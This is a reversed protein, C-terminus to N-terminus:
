ELGSQKTLWRAMSVSRLPSSLPFVVTVSKDDGQDASGGLLRVQDEFSGGEVTMRKQKYADLSTGGPAPTWASRAVWPAEAFGAIQYGIADAAAQADRGRFWAGIDHYPLHGCRAYMAGATAKADDYATNALKLFAPRGSGSFFESAYGSALKVVVGPEKANTGVPSPAPDVSVEGHNGAALVIGYSPDLAGDPGRLKAFAPDNAGLEGGDRALWIEVVWGYTDYPGLEGGNQISKRAAECSREVGGPPPQGRQASDSQKPKGRGFFVYAGGGLLAIGLLAFVLSSAGGGSSRAPATAQSAFRQAAPPYPQSRPAGSSSRPAVALEMSIPEHSM